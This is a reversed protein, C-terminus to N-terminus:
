LVIKYVIDSYITYYLITYYLISYCLIACCTYCLMTYGSEAGTLISREALPKHLAAGSALESRRRSLFLSFSVSLSTVHKANIDDGWRLLICPFLSTCAGHMMRWSSGRRAMSGSEHKGALSKVSCLHTVQPVGRLHAACDLPIVPRSRM